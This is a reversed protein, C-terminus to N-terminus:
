SVPTTQCAGCGSRIPRILQNTPRRRFLRRILRGPIKSSSAAESPIPALDRSAAPVRGPVFAGRALASPAYSSALALPNRLIGGMADM